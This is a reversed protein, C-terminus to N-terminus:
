EIDSDYIEDSEESEDSSTSDTSPKKDRKMERIESLIKSTHDHIEKITQKQRKIKRQLLTFKDEDTVELKGSARIAAQGEADRTKKLQLDFNTDYLFVRVFM